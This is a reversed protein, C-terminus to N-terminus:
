LAMKYLILANKELRFLEVQCRQALVGTLLTYVMYDVHNAHCSARMKVVWYTDNWVSEMNVRQFGSTHLNYCLIAHSIHLPIKACLSIFVVNPQYFSSCNELMVHKDQLWIDFLWKRVTFNYFVFFSGDMSFSMELNDCIVYKWKSKKKVHNTFHWKSLLDNRTLLM